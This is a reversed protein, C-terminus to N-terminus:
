CVVDVEGGAVTNLDEEALGTIEMLEERSIKEM